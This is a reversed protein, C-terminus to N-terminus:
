SHLGQRFQLYSLSVTMCHTNGIFPLPAELSPTTIQPVICILPAYPLPLLHMSTKSPTEVEWGRGTPRVLKVVTVDSIRLPVLPFLSPFLPYYLNRPWSPFSFLTYDM